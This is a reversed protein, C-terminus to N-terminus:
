HFLYIVSSARGRPLMGNQMYRRIPSRHAVARVVVTTRVGCLIDRVVCWCSWLEICAVYEHSVNTGGRGRACTTYQVVKNLGLLVADLAKWVTSNDEEKYAPLLRVLQDAGMRGARVLAYADTVISARDQCFFLTRIWLPSPLISM